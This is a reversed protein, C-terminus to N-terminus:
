KGWAGMVYDLRGTSGDARRFIVEDGEIKVLRLPGGTTLYSQLQPLPTGREVAACYDPQMQIM